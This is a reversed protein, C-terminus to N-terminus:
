FNGQKIKKNAFITLNWLYQKRFANVRDILKEDYYYSMIWGGKGLWIERKRCLIPEERFRFHLLGQPMECLPPRPRNGPFLGGGIGMGMRGISPYDHAPDRKKKKWSCRALRIGSAPDCKGRRSHTWGVTFVSCSVTCAQPFPYKEEAYYNGGSPFEKDSCTWSRLVDDEQSEGATKSISILTLNQPIWRSLGASPLWM